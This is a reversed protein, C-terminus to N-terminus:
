APSNPRGSPGAITLALAILAFWLVFPILEGAGGSMAGRTALPPPPPPPVDGPQAAANAGALGVGQGASLTSLVMWANPTAAQVPQAQPAPAAATAVTSSVVLAVSAAIAAIKKPASRM